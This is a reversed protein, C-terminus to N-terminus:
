LAAGAAADVLWTLTGPRPRVLGAPLAAEGAAPRLCQRVAEAKEAGTALVLVNAARNILPLTFSIRDPPPKPSHHVAIVDLSPLITLAPHGPFLSATHGDPGMGLLVLDLVMTEGTNAAITEAYAMAAAEPSSGITPVPFANAAPLPIHDLLAERALLFNSEADDPAVFREDSWFLLVHEWPVQERLPPQALLQYMAKPTSGGALAASFQGRRAVAEQALAVFRQAAEQAVAAADPLVQVQANTTM